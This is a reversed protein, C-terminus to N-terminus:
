RGGGLKLPIKDSIIRNFKSDGKFEGYVTTDDTVNDYYYITGVGEEDTKCVRYYKDDVYMYILKDVIPNGLEDLLTFTVQYNNEADETTFNYITDVSLYCTLKSSDSTIFVDGTVDTDNLSTVNFFINYGHNDLNDTVKIENVSKVRRMENLAEYSYQEMKFTNGSTKNAKILEWARNGFDMYTPNDTKYLEQYGTLLKIIIANKLSDGETIQIEDGISYALDYLHNTKEFLLQDKNQTKYKSIKIM